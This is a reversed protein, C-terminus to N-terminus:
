AILRLTHLSFVRVKSQSAYSHLSFMYTNLYGYSSYFSIYITYVCQVISHTTYSHLSFLRIFVPVISHSILFTFV